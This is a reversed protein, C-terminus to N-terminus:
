ITYFRYVRLSQQNEYHIRNIVKHQKIVINSKVNIIDGDISISDTLRSCYAFRQTSIIQFTNNMYCPLQCSEKNTDYLVDNLFGGCLSETSFYKGQFTTSSLSFSLLNTSKSFIYFNLLISLFLIFLLYHM